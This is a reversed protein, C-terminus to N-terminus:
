RELLEDIASRIVQPAEHVTDHGVSPIVTLKAEGLITAAKEAMSVPAATDNEGWVLQVPCAIQELQVRYDESVARVLVGRMVGSANRYDASGSRRRRDEMKEDSILRMANLRRAIRFKLSPKSKSGTPRILPVGTLVLGSVLEPHSAALHVAVRGGFSHGVLVIPADCSALVDLMAHAYDAAGWDHPPAASAGFGPLDVAIADLGPLIERFDDSTRGWGHLALVRAPNSGFVDGFLSQEGFAHLM